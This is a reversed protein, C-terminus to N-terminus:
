VGLQRLRTRPVVRTAGALHRAFGALVALEDGGPISELAPRKVEDLQILEALVIGVQLLLHLLLSRRQASLNSRVLEVQEKGVRVGVVVRDQRDGHALAADLGLVPDLHQQAHVELPRLPPPELGLGDVFRAPLLGTELARREDDATRACVPEEARLVADVPQHADGREILVM